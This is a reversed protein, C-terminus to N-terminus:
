GGVDFWTWLDDLMFRNEPALAIMKFFGSVAIIFALIVVGCGVMSIARKGFNKQLWPGALFNIAAGIAPLLIIWRVFSISIPHDM